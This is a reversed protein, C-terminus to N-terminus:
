TPVGLRPFLWTQIFFWAVLAGIFIWFDSM